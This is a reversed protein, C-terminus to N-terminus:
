RGDPPVTRLPARPVLGMADYELRAARLLHAQAISDAHVSAALFAAALVANRITGGNMQPFRTALDEADFDASIPARGCALLRRWLLVLEAEGPEPLMLHASIRRYMARDLVAPHNTTLFAVGSFSDLRQLLYDVEENSHRDSATNIERTRSGFLAEAEDILLAFQGTEVADFLRAMRETSEGIWKSVIRSHDVAFLEYGLARSMLGALMTKGTGPPGSLLVVTGGGRGLKDGFGWAGFVREAQRVRAVVLDARERVAPPLVLDDWDHRVRVVSGLDGVRNAVHSRLADALVTEGLIPRITSGLTRDRAISVAHGIARVQRTAGASHRQPTTQWSQETTKRWPSGCDVVRQSPQRRGCL